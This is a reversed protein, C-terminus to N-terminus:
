SQSDVHRINKKLVGSCWEKVHYTLRNDPTISKELIDKSCLEKLLKSIASDPQGLRQSLEANTLGPTSVLANIVRGTAERRMLSIVIQEEKSYSNSNPFYRVFKGDIFAAIKHKRELIFVHYRVTGMNMQTGRSIEYLTSGPHERVYTSLINRNYNNDMQSRARAVAGFLFLKAFIAIAGLLAIGVVAVAGITAATTSIRGDVTGLFLTSNNVAIASILSGAETKVLPKGGPSFTYVGSAYAAKSQGLTVPYEYKLARFSVYVADAGPIVDIYDMVYYSPEPTYSLNRGLVEDMHKVPDSYGRELFDGIYRAESDNITVITRTSLNIRYSWLYTDNAIDYARITAYPLDDVPTKSNLNKMETEYIIGNVAAPHNNGCYVDNYSQPGAAVKGDNGIVYLKDARPSQGMIGFYGLYVNGADDLPMLNFLGYYGDSFRKSWKENGSTDLAIIGNKVPVYLTGNQYIPLASFVPRIEEAVSQRFLSEGMDKSWLRAGDPGYAEITSSPLRYDSYGNGSAEMFRKITRTVYLNGYEDIAAPDSIDPITFVIRGEADIVTENYNHFLYVQDGIARVTTSDLYEKDTALPLTWAIQGDPAIAM